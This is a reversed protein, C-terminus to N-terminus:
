FLNFQKQIFLKCRIYREEIDAYYMNLRSLKIFLDHQNLNYAPFADCLKVSINQAISNVRLTDLQEIVNIGDKKLNTEISM